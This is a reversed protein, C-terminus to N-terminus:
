DQLPPLGVAPLHLLPQPRAHTSRASELPPAAALPPCAWENVLRGGDEGLEGLAREKGAAIVEEEAARDAVLLRTMRSNWGTAALSNM